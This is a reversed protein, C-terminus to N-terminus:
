SEVDVIFGSDGYRPTFELIVLFGAYRFPYGLTWSRILPACIAFLRPMRQFIGFGGFAREFVSCGGVREGVVARNRAWRVRGSAFRIEPIGAVKASGACGRVGMAQKQAVPCQRCIGAVLGVEGMEMAEVKARACEFGRVLKEGDEGLAFNVAVGIDAVRRGPVIYVLYFVCWGIRIGVVREGGLFVSEEPSAGGGFPKGLVCRPLAHGALAENVEGVVGGMREGNEEWM